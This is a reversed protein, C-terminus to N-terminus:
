PGPPEDPQPPPPPEPWFVVTMNDHDDWADIRQMRTVDAPDVLAHMTAKAHASAINQAVLYIPQSVGRVAARWLYKM